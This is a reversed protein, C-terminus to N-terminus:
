AIKSGDMNTEVRSRMVNHKPDKMLYQPLEDIRDENLWFLHKGDEDNGKWGLTMNWNRKQCEFTEPSNILATKVKKIIWHDWDEIQVYTHKLDTSEVIRIDIPKDKELLGFYTGYEDKREYILYINEDIPELEEKDEEEGKYHLLDEYSEETLVM